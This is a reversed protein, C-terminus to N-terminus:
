KWNKKWVNKTEMDLLSRRFPANNIIKNVLAEYNRYPFDKIDKFVIMGFETEEEDRFYIEFPRREDEEDFPLDHRVFHWRGGKKDVYKKKDYSWLDSERM